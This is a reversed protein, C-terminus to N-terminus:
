IRIRTFLCREFLRAYSEITSYCRANLTGPISALCSEHPQLTIASCTLIVHHRPFFSIQYSWTAIAISIAISIATMRTAMASPADYRRALPKWRILQLLPLCGNHIMRSLHPEGDIQLLSSSLRRLNDDAAQTTKLSM